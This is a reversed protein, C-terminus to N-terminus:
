RNRDTHAGTRSSRANSLEHCLLVMHADCVHMIKRMIHTSLPSQLPATTSQNLRTYGRHLNAHIWTRPCFHRTHVYQQRAPIDLSM